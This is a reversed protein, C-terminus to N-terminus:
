SVGIILSKLKVGLKKFAGSLRSLGKKIDKAIYYILMLLFIIPTSLFFLVVLLIQTPLGM